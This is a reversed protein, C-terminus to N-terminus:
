PPLFNPDNTLILSGLYEADTFTFTLVHPGAKLSLPYPDILGVCPERFRSLRNLLQWRMGVEADDCGADFEYPSILDDYNYHYINPGDEEYYRVWVLWDASCPVDFEWGLKDGDNPGNAVVEGDLLAPMVNQSLTAKNIELDVTVPGDCEMPTGTTLPPDGTTEDAATTGTTTPDVATTSATSSTTPDTTSTTTTTVPTSTATTDGTPGATTDGTSAAPTAGYTGNDIFCACALLLPALRYM